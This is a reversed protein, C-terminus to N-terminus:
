SHGGGMKSPDADKPRQIDHNKMYRHLQYRLLRAQNPMGLVDLRHMLYLVDHYVYAPHQHCLEGKMLRCGARLVNNAIDKKTAM